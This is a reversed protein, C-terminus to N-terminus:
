IEEPDGDLLKRALGSRGPAKTKRARVNFEDFREGCDRCGYREHEGYGRYGGPTYCRVRPSDCSPCVAVENKGLGIHDSHNMEHTPTDTM